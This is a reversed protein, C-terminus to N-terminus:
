DPTRTNAARAKERARKRALRRRRENEVREDRRKAQTTKPRNPHPKGAFASWIDALLHETWGWAIQGENLAIQTASDRPLTRIRVWIM